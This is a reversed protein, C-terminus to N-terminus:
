QFRSLAMAKDRVAEVTGVVADAQHHQVLPRVPLAELGEELLLLGLDPRYECGSLYCRLDLRLDPALKRCLIGVAPPAQDRCCCVCGVSGPASRGSWHSTSIPVRLRGIM